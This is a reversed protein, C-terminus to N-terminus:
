YVADLGSHQVTVVWAGKTPSRIPTTIVLVRTAAMIMMILPTGKKNRFIGLNKKKKKGIYHNRFVHDM